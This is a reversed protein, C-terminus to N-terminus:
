RTINKFDRSYFLDCRVGHKVVTSQRASDQRDRTLLILFKCFLVGAPRVDLQGGGPRLLRLIDEGGGGDSQRVQRRRRLGAVLVLLVEVM